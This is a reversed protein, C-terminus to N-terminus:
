RVEQCDAIKVVRYKPENPKRNTVNIDYRGDMYIGVVKGRTGKLKGKIVKVKM